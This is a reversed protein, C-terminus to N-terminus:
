NISTSAALARGAEASAKVPRSMSEPIKSHSATGAPTTVPIPNAQHHPRIAIRRSESLAGSNSAVTLLSGHAAHRNHPPGCGRARGLEAIACDPLLVPGVSEKNDLLLHPGAARCNFIKFDFEFVI